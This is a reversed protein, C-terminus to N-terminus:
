QRAPTLVPLAFLAAGALLLLSGVLPPWALTGNWLLNLTTTVVSGLLLIATATMAPVRALGEYFTLVYGFLLAATLLVWLLSAPETPVARPGTVAVYALLFLSGFGMRGLAVVRGPLEESVLFRRSLTIEVAWLLTAALILLDGGTPAFGTVKLLLANGALLLAAGAVARWGHRERLFVYALIGVWVFLTKHILAAQAASTMNLGTFFLLFPLSGGVLGILALSLWQRRTLRRLTRWERLAVFLSVLFVAVVLNKMTTFLAPEISAVSFKNLFISVGSIAATLLVLGVGKKEM